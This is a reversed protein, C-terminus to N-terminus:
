SQWPSGDDDFADPFLEAATRGERLSKLAALWRNPRGKSQEWLCGLLAKGIEAEAQQLSLGRRLM